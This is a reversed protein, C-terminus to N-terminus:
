APRREAETRVENARELQLEAAADLFEMVTRLQRETFRGMIKAGGERLPGYIEEARKAILDTPEVIM